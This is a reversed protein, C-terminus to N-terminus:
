PAAGLPKEKEQQGGAEPHEQREGGARGKEGQQHVQAQNGQWNDPPVECVGKGKKVVKEQMECEMLSGSPNIM